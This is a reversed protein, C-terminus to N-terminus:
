RKTSASAPKGCRGAPRTGAGRASRNIKVAESARQYDLAAVCAAQAAHGAPTGAWRGTGQRLDQRDQEALSLRRRADALEGSRDPPISRALQAREHHLEALSKAAQRDLALGRPTGPGLGM